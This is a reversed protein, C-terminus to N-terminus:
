NHSPPRMKPRSYDSFLGPSTSFRHGLTTPVAGSVTRKGHKVGTVMHNVVDIAVTDKASSTKRYKENVKTVGERYTEIHIMLKVKEALKSFSHPSKKGGADAELLRANSAHMRPCLLLLFLLGIAPM